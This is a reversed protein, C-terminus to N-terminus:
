EDKDVKKWRAAAAKKAIRQRDEPSLKEARAKGGKLGGQRGLLVAALSKGDATLYLRELDAASMSAAGSTKRAKSRQVNKM